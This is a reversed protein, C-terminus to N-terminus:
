RERMPQDTAFIIPIQDLDRVVIELRHKLTASTVEAQLQLASERLRRIEDHLEDSIEM